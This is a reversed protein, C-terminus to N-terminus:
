LFFNIYAFKEAYNYSHACMKQKITRTFRSLFICKQTFTHLRSAYMRFFAGKHVGEIM